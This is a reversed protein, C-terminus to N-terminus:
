KLTRGDDILRWLLYLNDSINYEIGSSSKNTLADAIRKLQEAQALGAYVQAAGILGDIQEYNVVDDRQIADLAELAKATFNM